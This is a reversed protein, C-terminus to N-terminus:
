KNKKVFEFCTRGKELTIFLSNFCCVQELVNLALAGPVVVEDVDASVHCTVHSFLNREENPADM